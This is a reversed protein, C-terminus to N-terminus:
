IDKKYNWNIHLFSLICGVLSSIMSVGICILSIMLASDKTVASWNVIFSMLYLGGFLLLLVTCVASCISSFLNKKSIVAFANFINICGLLVLGFLYAGINVSFDTVNSNIRLVATAHSGLFLGIFIAPLFLLIGPLLSKNYKFSTKIDFAKLKATSAISSGIKKLVNM